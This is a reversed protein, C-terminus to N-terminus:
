FRTLVWWVIVLRDYLGVALVIIFTVAAVGGRVIGFPLDSESRARAITGLIQNDIDM